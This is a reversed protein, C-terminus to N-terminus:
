WDVLFDSFWIAVNYKYIDWIIYITNEDKNINEVYNIMYKNVEQLTKYLQLDTIFDITM